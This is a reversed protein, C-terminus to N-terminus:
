EVLINGVYQATGSDTLINIEIVYNGKKTPAHFEGGTAQQDIKIKTSKGDKWATVTKEKLLFDGHNFKLIVSENPKLKIQEQEKALKFIDKVKNEYHKDSDWDFNAKELKMEQSSNNIISANPPTYVYTEAIGGCGTLLFM